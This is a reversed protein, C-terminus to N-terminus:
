LLYTCQTVVISATPNADLIFQPVQTSKGCGTEGQIITVPSKAVTDVIQQQACFAPLRQRLQLMKPYQQNALKQQQRARHYTSRQDL